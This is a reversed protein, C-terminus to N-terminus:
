TKGGIYLTSATGVYISYGESFAATYRRHGDALRKGIERGLMHVMIVVSTIM